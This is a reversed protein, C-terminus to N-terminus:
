SFKYGRYWPLNLGTCCSKCRTLRYNTQARFRRNLRQIDILEQPEVPEVANSHRSRISGALDSLCISNQQHTDYEFLCRGSM